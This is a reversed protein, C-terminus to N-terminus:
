VRGGSGGFGSSSSRSGGSIKGSSNQKPKPIKRVNSYLYIDNQQTLQMSGPLVYDNAAAKSRVTKLQSKLTKTYIFGIVLGILVAIAIWKLSFFEPESDIEGDFIQIAMECADAFAIATEYYDEDRLPSTFADIVDSENNRYSIIDNGSDNYALYYFGHLSIVLTIYDDTDKFGFQQLRCEYKTYREMDESSYLDTTIYVLECMYQESLTELKILIDAEEEDTLLDAHDFVLTQRAKDGYNYQTAFAESSLAFVCILSIAISLLRKM